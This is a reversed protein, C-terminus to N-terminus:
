QTLLGLLEGETMKKLDRIKVYETKSVIQVNGSTIKFQWPEAAGYYTGEVGNKLFLVYKQGPELSIGGYEDIKSGDNLESYEPYVISINNDGNGKLWQSVKFEYEQSMCKWDKAYEKPNKPDKALNRSNQSRNVVEGVVICDSEKSLDKITDRTDYDSVVVNESNDSLTTYSLFDPEESKKTNHNVITFTTITAVLILVLFVVPIKKSILM